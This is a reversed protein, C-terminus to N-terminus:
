LTFSFFHKNLVFYCNSLTFTLHKKKKKNLSTALFACDDRLIRRVGKQGSERRLLSFNWAGGKRTNKFFYLGGMQRPPLPSVPSRTCYRCPGPMTHMLANVGGGGRLFVGGGDKKGLGVKFRCVTWARRKLCNGGKYQNKM